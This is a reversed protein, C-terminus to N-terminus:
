VRLIGSFAVGFPHFSLSYDEIKTRRNLSSRWSVARISPISRLKGKPFARRCPEGGPQLEEGERKPVTCTPQPKARRNVLEGLTYTHESVAGTNDPM